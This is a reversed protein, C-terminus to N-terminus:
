QAGAEVTQMRMFAKLADGHKGIYLLLEDIEGLQSDVLELESERLKRSDKLAKRALDLANRRTAVSSPGSRKM